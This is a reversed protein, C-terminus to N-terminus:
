LCILSQLKALVRFDPNRFDTYGSVPNSPEKVEIEKVPTEQDTGTNTYNVCGGVITLSLIGLLLYSLIQKTM